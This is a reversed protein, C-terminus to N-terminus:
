RIPQMSDSQTKIKLPLRTVAHYVRQSVADDVAGGIRILVRTRIVDLVAQFVFLTGALVGLGVLTPISRSPLVRDYVELMLFSGTLYLINIMGSMIGVGIFAARCRRLAASLESSRDPSKKM